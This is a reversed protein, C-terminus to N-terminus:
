QNIRTFTKYHDTTKYFLGDNSFLLRDAGRKYGRFNIDAEYWIRGSKIPLLKEYNGFRDGGISKGQAVKWLDVGPRWGLKSAESKTIYHDPLKKYKKIYFAVEEFTEPKKQEKSFCFGFSFFSAFLLLSLFIKKM